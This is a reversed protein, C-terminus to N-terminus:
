GKKLVIDTFRGAGCGLDLYSKATDFEWGTYKAFLDESSRQGSFSDIQTRRYNNWQEGFSSAYDEADTVLDVVGDRIPWSAGTSADVLMGEDVVDDRRKIIKIDLANGSGPSRFIALWKIHM